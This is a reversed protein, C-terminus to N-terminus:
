RVCQDVCRCSILIFVAVVGVFFFITYDGNKKERRKTRERRIHMTEAITRFMRELHNHSLFYKTFIRRSSSDGDDDDDNLAQSVVVNFSFM